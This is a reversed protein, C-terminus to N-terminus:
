EDISLCNKLHEYESMLRGRYAIISNSIRPVDDAIDALWWSQNLKIKCLDPILEVLVQSFSQSADKAVGSPLNDVAMIEIDKNSLCTNNIGRLHYSWFYTPSKLTTTKETFEVGGKIDCSIDGIIRLKPNSIVTPGFMDKTILKPQTPSWSICNFLVTVRSLYKRFKHPVTENRSFPIIYIQSFDKSILYDPSQILECPTMYQHPLLNLMEMVGQATRGKGAIGIIVPLIASPFKNIGNKMVTAINHEWNVSKMQDVDLVRDFPWIRLFLNWYGSEKFWRIGLARLTIAAGVIGAHRGFRSTEGNKNPQILEYDILSCKKNLFERLIPMNYSQGQTTHSFCMYLKKKLIRCPSVEKIGLIIDAKSLNRVIKAGVKKYAKDPYVRDKSKEVYVPIHFKKILQEVHAPVLPTRYEQAHDERRIGISNL